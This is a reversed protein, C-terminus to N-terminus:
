QNKLKTIAWESEQIGPFVIRLKASIANIWAQQTGPPINGKAVAQDMGFMVSNEFPQHHFQDAFHVYRPIEKVPVNKM